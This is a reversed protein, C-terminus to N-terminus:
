HAFALCIVEKAGALILIERAETMTSGTTIVDDIIIIKAGVIKEINIAVFVNHINKVRDKKNLNKQMLSMSKKILFDSYTIKNAGSESVIAKALLSSQNFGREIQKKKHLPIPTIYIKEKEINLNIKGWMMKALISIIKKNPSHKIEQILLRALNNEYSTVALMYDEEFPRAPKLKSWDTKQWSEEFVRLRENKPFLFDVLTDIIWKIVNQINKIIM